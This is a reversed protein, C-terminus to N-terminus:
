SSGRARAPATPETAWFCTGSLTPWRWASASGCSRRTSRATVARQQRGLEVLTEGAAAAVDAVTVGAAGRATLLARAADLIRTQTAEHPPEPASKPPKTTMPGFNLMVLVQTWILYPLFAAPRTSVVSRHPLTSPLRVALHQALPAAANQAGRVALRM